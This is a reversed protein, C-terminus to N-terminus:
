YVEWRGQKYYEQLVPQSENNVEIETSGDFIDKGFHAMSIMADQNLFRTPIQGFSLRVVTEKLDTHSMLEEDVGLVFGWEGMTPIHNHYALLSFGAAQLTKYICVFAKRAFFPSSAQTVIAGGRKLHKRCLRYFNLSYLRALEVSNPDPLDIIIVDFLHHVDQLFAFADAHVIEVRPDKLANNNLQVIM